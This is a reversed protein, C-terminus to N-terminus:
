FLLVGTCKHLGTQLFINQAHFILKDATRFTIEESGCLRPSLHCMVIASCETCGALKTQPDGPGARRPNERRWAATWREEGVATTNGSSSDTQAAAKRGMVESWWWRGVAGVCLFLRGELSSAKEMLKPYGIRSTIVLVQKRYSDYGSFLKL